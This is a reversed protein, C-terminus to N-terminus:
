LGIIMEEMKKAAVGLSHEKRKLLSIYRPPIEEILDIVKIEPENLIMEEPVFGIGLDAKVMPLIQDTTAAEINPAYPM